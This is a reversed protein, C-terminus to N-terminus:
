SGDLLEAVVRGANAVGRFGEVKPRACIVRLPVTVVDLSSPAAIEVVVVTMSAVTSSESNRCVFGGPALDSELELDHNTM